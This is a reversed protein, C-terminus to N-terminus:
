LMTKQARGKNYSWSVCNYSRRKQQQVSQILPQLHGQTAHWDWEKPHMGFGGQQLEEKLGVSKRPIRAGEGERLREEFTRGGEGLSSGKILKL